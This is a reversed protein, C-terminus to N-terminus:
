NGYKNNGKKREKRGKKSGLSAVSEGGEARKIEKKGDALQKRGDKTVNGSCVLYAM